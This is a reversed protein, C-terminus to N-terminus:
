LQAFFNSTLRNGEARLWLDHNSAVFYISQRERGYQQLANHAVCVVQFSHLPLCLMWTM